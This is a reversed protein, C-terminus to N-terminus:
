KLDIRKKKKKKEKKRKRNTNSVFINNRIALHCNRWHVPFIWKCVISSQVSIFSIAPTWILTTLIILPKLKIDPSGNFYTTDSGLSRWSPLIPNLIKFKGIRGVSATPSGILVRFSSFHYPPIITVNDAIWFFKEVEGSWFVYTRQGRYSTFFFYYIVNFDLLCLNVNQSSVCHKAERRKSRMKMNQGFVILVIRM